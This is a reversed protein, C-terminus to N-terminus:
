IESAGSSITLSKWIIGAWEISSATFFASSIRPFVFAEIVAIGSPTNGSRRASRLFEASHNWSGGRFVRYVGSAAGLPDTQAGRPYEGNWDWCWEGVNGHMDYLGFSNPAFSGVPTTSGRSVTRANNAYPRNGDYNAQNGTINSGTYFPTVTGARCAYEWEAETPLRYGNARRNWSVNQRNIAYAPSLGEKVSLKNCYEIADFWSVREVPLNPGKFYSPNTGTLDQYEAQTVEYKGMYFSSVTVQRQFENSSRRTENQPSGMMFTGGNIRIFGDPVQAYSFAATIFLLVVFL